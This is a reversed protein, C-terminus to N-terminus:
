LFIKNINFGIKFINDVGDSKILNKQINQFISENSNIKM